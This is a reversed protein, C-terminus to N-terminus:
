LRKICTRCCRCARFLLVCFQSSNFFGTFIQKSFNKLSLWIRGRVKVPTAGSWRFWCRHFNFCIVFVTPFQKPRVRDRSPNMECLCLSAFYRFCFWALKILNQHVALMYNHKTLRLRDPIGWRDSSKTSYTASRWWPKTEPYLWCTDTITICISEYLLQLVFISRFEDKFCIGVRSGFGSYERQVVNAIVDTNLTLYYRFFFFVGAIGLSWKVQNHLVSSVPSLRSSSVVETCPTSCPHLPSAYSVTITLGASSSRNVCRSCRKQHGVQCTRAGSWRLVSRRRCLLPCPSSRTVGVPAANFVLIGTPTKVGGFHKNWRTVAFSELLKEAIVLARAEVLQHSFPKRVWELLLTGSNGHSFIVTIARTYTVGTYLYCGLNPAGFKNMELMDMYLYCGKKVTFYLIFKKGFRNFTRIMQLWIPIYSIM